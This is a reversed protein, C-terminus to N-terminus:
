EDQVAPGLAAISAVLERVGDPPEEEWHVAFAGSADSLVLSCCWNSPEGPQLDLFGIHEVRAFLEAVADQDARHEARQDDEPVGASEVWTEVRGDRHVTTGSYTGAIGGGCSTALQTAAAYRPDPESGQRCGASCGAAWLACVSIVLAIHM